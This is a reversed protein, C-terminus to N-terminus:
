SPKLKLQSQLISSVIDPPSNMMSKIFPRLQIKNARCTEMVSSLIAYERAGEPTRNGFSIKRFIVAPRIMQEARNNHFDADPHQVFNILSNQHDVMRKILTQTKKNNSKLQCIKLIIKKLDETQQEKLKGDSQQQAEKGDKILKKTLENLSKLARDDPSVVLEKKIDRLFHVLCKQTYKFQTYSAYFDSHLLGKYDKGIINRPIHGGRSKDAHFFALQKNCFIWLYWRQGDMKWGTEDAHLISQYPIAAEITSYAPELDRCVRSLIGMVGSPSLDIGCTEQCFRSLKRLSVGMQQRLITLTTKLTDGIIIPPGQTAKPDIVSKGCDLCTGYQYRVRTVTKIIVPIDEIYKDIFNEQLLVDEHQCSPCQKPPLIIKTCDVKKPIPRTAGRHGKPAGRKKSLIKDPEDKSTKATSTAEPKIGLLQHIQQNKRVLDKQLEMNQAKLEQNEKEHRKYRSIIIEKLHNTKRLHDLRSLLHRIKDQCAELRNPIAQIPQNSNGMLSPPHLNLQRLATQIKQLSSDSLIEAITSYIQDQLTVQSDVTNM